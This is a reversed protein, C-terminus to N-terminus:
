DIVYIPTHNEDYIISPIHEKESFLTVEKKITEYIDEDLAKVVIHKPFNQQVYESITLTTDNPYIFKVSRGDINREMIVPIKIERIKYLSPDNKAYEAYYM